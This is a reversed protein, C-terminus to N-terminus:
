MAYSLADRSFMLDSKLLTKIQALNHTVNAVKVMPVAAGVRVFGFNNKMVDNVM